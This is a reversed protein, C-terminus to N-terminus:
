KKDHKSWFKDVAEDIAERVKPDEVYAILIRRFEAAGVRREKAFFEKAKAHEGPTLTISLRASLERNDTYAM